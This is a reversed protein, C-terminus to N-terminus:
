EKFLIRLMSRAGALSKKLGIVVSFIGPSFILNFGPEGSGIM